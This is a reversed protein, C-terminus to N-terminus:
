NVDAYTPLSARLRRFPGYVNATDILRYGTNIADIVGREYEAADTMQFVDFGLLPTDIDNNLNVTQM